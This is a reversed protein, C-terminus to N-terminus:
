PRYPKMPRVCPRASRRRERLRGRAAADVAWDVAQLSHHSGDVGVVLPLEVTDVVKRRM